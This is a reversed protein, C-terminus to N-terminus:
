KQLKQALGTRITIYVKEFFGQIHKNMGQHLRFYRGLDTGLTIFSVRFSGVLAVTIPLPLPICPDSREIQANRLKAFAAVEGGPRVLGARCGAAGPARVRFLQFMRIAEIEKEMQDETVRILTQYGREHLGSQLWFFLLSEIPMTISPFIIGVIGKFGSRISHLIDTGNRGAVFTGKGKIRVVLNEDSMVALAQKSTIQSVNFYEALEKESPVRDGPKLKGSL